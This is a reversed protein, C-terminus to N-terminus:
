RLREQAPARRQVAQAREVGGSCKALTEARCRHAPGGAQRAPDPVSRTLHFRIHSANQQNGGRAKLDAEYDEIAEAWTAPRGSATGRALARAKESAQWFDLVHEGDAVEKDDATGVRKTWEGGKGNAAELVWTGAGKTKRYGLRLGPAINTLGYPARRRKLKERDTRTAIKAAPRLRRPM